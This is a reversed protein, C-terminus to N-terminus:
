EILAIKQELERVRRRVDQIFASEQEALASVARLQHDGARGTTQARQQAAATAIVNDQQLAQIQSSM